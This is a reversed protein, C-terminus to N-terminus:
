AACSSCGSDSRNAMRSIGEEVLDPLVLHPFPTASAVSEAKAIVRRILTLKGPHRKEYSAQLRLKLTTLVDAYGPIAKLASGGSNESTNSTNMTNSQDDISRPPFIM